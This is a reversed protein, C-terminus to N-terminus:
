AREDAFGIRRPDGEKVFLVALGLCVSLGIASLVFPSYHSSLDLDWLRFGAGKYLYSGLVAGSVSGVGQATALAGIVAGRMWPSSMDTVLALWAPMALVFGLGLFTAATAMQWVQDSVSITWMALACVLLGVRISRPKGWRDGLRGLFLSACAVLGALPLMLYGYESETMGLEEMAFLKVIPVLLGIAFFSTLALLMMDPVSKLGLVLDGIRFPRRRADHRAELDEKTHRPVLILAMLATALFVGGALYFSTIRSDTIDNARGGVLPGLALGGIYTVMMVSMASARRETRAAGGIAAAITPWIAALALGDFARLLMIQWLRQSATMLFAAVTSILAGGVILPKRGLRDGLSGMPSKFVTEVVLFAAFIPGLHAALGLERVYPPIASQTVIGYGLSAMWSVLGLSILAKNESLWGGFRAFASQM